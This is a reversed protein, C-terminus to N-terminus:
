QEDEWDAGSDDIEVSPPNARVGATLGASFSSFINGSESDAIWM